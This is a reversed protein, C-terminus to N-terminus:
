RGRAERLMASCGRPVGVKRPAAARRSCRVGLGAGQGLRQSDPTSQGVPMVGEGAGGNEPWPLLNCIGRAPRRPMTKWAIAASACQDDDRMWPRGLPGFGGPCRRFGCGCVSDPWLRALTQIAAAPDQLVRMRPVGTGGLAGWALLLAYRLPASLGVTADQILPM